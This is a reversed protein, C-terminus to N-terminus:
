ESITGLLKRQINALIQGDIKVNLNDVTEKPGARLEYLICDTEVVFVLCRSMNNYTYTYM